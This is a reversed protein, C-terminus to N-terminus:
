ISVIDLYLLIEGVNWGPFHQRLENESIGAMKALEAFSLKSNKSFTVRGSRQLSLSIKKGLDIQAKRDLSIEQKEKALREAQDFDERRSVNLNQEFAIQRMLKLLAVQRATESKNVVSPQPASEFLKPDESRLDTEVRQWDSPSNPDLNLEKLRARIAKTQAIEKKAGHLMKKV